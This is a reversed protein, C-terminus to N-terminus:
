FSKVQLARIRPGLRDIVNGGGADGEDRADVILETSGGRSAKGVKIATVAKNGTEIVGQREHVVAVICHPINGTAPLDVTHDDPLRTCRDRNLIRSASQCVIYRGRIYSRGIESRAETAAVSQIRTVELSLDGIPDLRGRILWHSKDRVGSSDYRPHCRGGTKSVRRAIADDARLLHVDVERQALCKLDAFPLIQTEAGLEKIQEVM